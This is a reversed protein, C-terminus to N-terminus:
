AGSGSEWLGCLWGHVADLEDETMADRSKRYREWVRKNHTGPEVEERHDLQGCLAQIERRKRRERVSAPEATDRPAPREPSGGPATAADKARTAAEVAEAFTTVPVGILGKERLILDFSAYLSQKVEEPTAARAAWAAGNTNGLEPFILPRAGGPGATGEIGDRVWQEQQDRIAKACKLFLADCPAFVFGHQNRPPGAEYDIRVARGLMQFIWPVSRIHTLAAIHTIEPVDLGEYAIAVTVLCDLAFADTHVRKFKRIAIMARDPDDSTAYDARDVGLHKLERLYGKATSIDPAVVLLKARPNVLRRHGNWHEVTKGLLESAYETRLATYVAKPVDDRTVEDLKEVEGTDGASTTWRLKADLWHFELPKVAEEGLADRLTYRVVVLGAEPRGPPDLDVVRIGPNDEYVPRYPLLGIEKRDGRAFMGSM